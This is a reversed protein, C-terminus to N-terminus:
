GKRTTDKWLPQCGDTFKENTRAHPLTKQQPAPLRSMEQQCPQRKNKSHAVSAALLKCHLYAGHQLPQLDTRETGSWQEQKRRGVRWSTYLKHHGEVIACCRSLFVLVDVGTEYVTADRIHNSHHNPQVRSPEITRQKM